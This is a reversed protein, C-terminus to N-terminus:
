LKVSVSLIQFPLIKDEVVDYAVIEGDIILSQVEDKNKYFKSFNVLEPYKATM